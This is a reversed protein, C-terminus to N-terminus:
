RRPVNGGGGRWSRRGRVRRRRRSVGAGVNATDDDGRERTLACHGGPLVFNWEALTQEEPRARATHGVNNVLVDVRGHRDLVDPVLAARADRDALDVDEIDTGVVTLGDADLREVIARGIGGGAGTVLAVRV